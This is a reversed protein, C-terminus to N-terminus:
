IRQFGKTIKEGSWDFRDGMVELDGMLVQHQDIWRVIQKGYVEYPCNLKQFSLRIRFPDRAREAPGTGM